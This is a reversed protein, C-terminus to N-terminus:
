VIVGLNQYRMLFTVTSPTDTPATEEYVNVSTFVAWVILTVKPLYRMTIYGDDFLFGNGVM